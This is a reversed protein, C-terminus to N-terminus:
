ASQRVLILKLSKYVAVFTLGGMMVSICHDAGIINLFASTEPPLATGMLNISRTLYDNIVQNIFYATGLGFGISALLRFILGSVIFSIISIIAIPM